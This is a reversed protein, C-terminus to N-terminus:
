ASTANNNQPKFRANGAENQFMVFKNAFVRSKMGSMARSTTELNRLNFAAFALAPLPKELKRGM